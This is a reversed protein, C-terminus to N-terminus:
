DPMKRGDLWTAQLLLYTHADPEQKAWERTLAGPDVVAPDAAEGDWSRALARSERAGSPATSALRRPARLLPAPLAGHFLAEMADGRDTWGFRGGAAALAALFRPDLLPHAVAAGADAALLDFNGLGLEIPRSATLARLRTGLRAPQKAQDAAWARVLARAAHPRLWPFPDPGRRAIIARRVPVPACLLALRPLDRAVAREAGSAVAAARAWRSSGLAEDGGIGTLLTGGAAEELLPVHFHANFPWLLGHRALGRTAIEGVVDLEDTLELRVWDDLGLHAVVLEQWRTEDTHACTPFRNTVPIPPPLGARRAASAAAALVLSSDRGGSFSVFCPGPGLAPLCVRELASFPTDGPPPAPLPAPPESGPGLVIGTALEISTLANM